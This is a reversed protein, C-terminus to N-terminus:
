SPARVRLNIGGSNNAHDVLAAAIQRSDLYVNVAQLGGGSKHTPLVTEGGHAMILQPSGMSGGVVGGSGYGPVGNARLIEARESPPMDAPFTAEIKKKLEKEWSGNFNQGFNKVADIIPGISHDYVSKVFEFAAEFPGKIADYIKDGIMVFFGYVDAFAERITDFNKVIVLVALGFPGTIVALLLPWNDVVWHFISQLIQWAKDVADHFWDFHTYAYIVGATLLAIAAIILGIPNAEMAINLLWQAATMANTAITSAITAVKHAVMAAIDKAKAAVSALHAKVVEGGAEWAKKGWEVFDSALLSVSRSIEALGIGVQLLNGSAMGSMIDNAGNMADGLAFLRDGADNASQSIDKMSKKSKNTTTTLEDIERGTGAVERELKDLKAELDSTDGTFTVKVLNSGRAAM